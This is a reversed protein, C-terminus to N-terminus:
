KIVKVTKSAGDITIKVLYVGTTLGSMNVSPSIADPATELVLKGLVDYIAITDVSTTSRINLIDQVPNPYVSFKDAAFDDNAAIQGDVYLIDDVYYENNADIAFFDVGAVEGTEAFFDGSYAIKGDMRVIVTNDDMNIEHSMTFWTNQPYIFSEGAVPDATNNMAFTGTGPAANAENFHIHLAWNAGAPISEQFNYYGTKGTPVFFNFNLTRIGSSQTGLLLMADQPGAGVDIFGSQDGSSAQADTVIINETPAGVPDNSWNNWVTPNQDSMDGLDYFEFNDELLQANVTFSLAFAALALLYIKKM